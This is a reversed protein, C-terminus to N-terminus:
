GTRFGGQEIMSRVAAIDPALARDTELHPVAARIRAHAAQLADSTKLPAHFDVGQAAALLEIAVVHAANGAIDGAKRAAFTAMSVHDEQNASTPITDVSAPHALTKNESVLAAATVQAIM